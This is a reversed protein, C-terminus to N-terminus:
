AGGTHRSDGGSSLAALRARLVKVDRANVFGTGAATALEADYEGCLAVLAANRETLALVQLSLAVLEAEEASFVSWAAIERVREIPLADPMPM